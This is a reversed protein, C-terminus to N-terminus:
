QKYIKKIVDPATMSLLDNNGKVPHSFDKFREARFDEEELKEKQIMTGMAGDYYVMQSQFLTSIYSRLSDRGRVFPLDTGAPHAWDLRTGPPMNARAAVIKPHTFQAYSYPSPTHNRAAEYTPCPPESPAVKEDTQWSFKIQKELKPLNTRPLKPIPLGKKKCM